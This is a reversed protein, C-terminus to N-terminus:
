TLASRNCEFLGPSGSPPVPNGPSFVQLQKISPSLSFRAFNILSCVCLTNTPVNTFKLPSFLIRYAVWSTCRIVLLVFTVLAPSRTQEWQPTVGPTRPRWRMRRLLVSHNKQSRLSGPTVGAHFWRAPLCVSHGGALPSRSLPCLSSPFCAKWLSFAALWTSYSNRLCRLDSKMIGSILGM